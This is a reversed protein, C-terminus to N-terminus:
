ANLHKWTHGNRIQSITLLSVGFQQALDYRRASSARIEVVQAATLRTPHKKSRGKAVMDRLNDACTGLFLHSPRCCNRVDCRHCVYLGDPIPGNGLEYAVRHAAVAKGNLKFHGYGDRRTAGIWLWCGESKRVKAWFREAALRCDM